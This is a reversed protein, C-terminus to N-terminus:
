KHLIIGPLARSCEDFLALFVAEHKMKGQAHNAKAMESMYWATSM